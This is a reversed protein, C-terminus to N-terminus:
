HVDKWSKGVKGDGALPVRLKLHEGAKVISKIGLSVLWDAMHDPAEWCLEDHFYGVRYINYGKVCYCPYGDKDLTLGGLWKDMLINAYAMAIAGCSQFTYNVLSHKSRISIKRGDIGLVWKKEGTTIWFHELKGKFLALPKAGEWFADYAMRGDREPIGATSAAKPPSAGYSLAYRFNKSKDRYVSVEPNDKHFEPTGILHKVGEYFHPISVITRMHIDGNVLTDAYEVGGEYPYTYHGEVRAELASADYGVFKYGKRSSIFLSRMESGLIVNKKAKPVNVVVSHRWRYTPTIGPASSSLRGDCELRSNAMWGQVVSQRNRHSMWRVILRATDGQLNDLNPCLRGQDQMKPTTTIINGQEDRVPKGKEDKRFNWLTPVWGCELLYDKVDDRNALRMVDSTKTDGNSVIPYDVGDVRVTNRDIIEGGRSECWKLMLASHTGDKNFPKAPLKWKAREGKNMPRPPLSPEIEAAIESLITEIKVLLAAAAEQDFGIGTIAQQSMLYSDIKYAIWYPKKFFDM